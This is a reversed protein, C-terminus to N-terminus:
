NEINHCANTVAQSVPTPTTSNADCEADTVGEDIRKWVGDNAYRYFEGQEIAVLHLWQNALLNEILDHNEIVTDIMSRPAAIVTQLRMPTHQFHNEGVLSQLPLGTQLDGGNGSLIGFQGVVNHVTKDGGGFRDNDVTSAYYQMNIWHAVVMPATMITELVQGRPDKRYDYSHLFARGHLNTSQTMSRPAVIMSANGALGWEPRVESWDKARRKLAGVSDCALQPMRERRVASSAITAQSILDELDGVHSTPVGDVDFFTLDDTTTNHLGALFHTDASIEIGRGALAKRIHSQNLLTAAFRANPEGSHGGCAGCDLGAALPNNETQCAHGCLVVLRAFDTTLGLNVLMSEVLDVQASTSLGQQQLSSLIPKLKQEKEGALGDENISSRDSGIGLAQKLLKWGYYVGITEVFPFCGVASNQLRKWLHRWTRIHKRHRIAVADRASSSDSIGEHLKFQPKLLVPVHANGSQQGLTVFEIPMGFFGAFGFTEIEDGVAELSRRIPESRVDICFVMQALKREVSSDSQFRASSDIKEPAQDPKASISSLLRDRFSIEMARLLLHRLSADDASEVNFSAGAHGLISDWCVNLELAESLAVDYALRIAILGTLDDKASSDDTWSSQYKAWASWGSISFAECLLFSSWLPRPVDLRQLLWIIASDAEHPMSSVLERFRIIGLLEANRDHVAASRWAQFLPLDKWPSRWVAQGEDYHASCYKSVEDRIIETWNTDSHQEAFEALTRIQRQENVGHECHGTATGSKAQANIQKLKECIWRPSWDKFDDGNSRTDQENLAAEIDSATFGGQAYQEAFFTIPMLTECDSFLRLFARARMFERETLGAYPNVAVYGKLPWVPAIPETVEAILEDFQRRLHPTAYPPPVFVGNLTKEAPQVQSM